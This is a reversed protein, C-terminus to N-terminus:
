NSANRFLEAIREARKGVQKAWKSDLAEKAAGEYDDVYIRELMKEFGLLRPIGMNFAMNYLGLRIAVPKQAIWPRAKLLEKIHYHIDNSLMLDAEENSIGRDELNRGVGITLIGLSDKYPKLRTGEDRRLHLHLLPMLESENM